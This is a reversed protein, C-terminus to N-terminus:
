GSQIVHQSRESLDPADQWLVVRASQTTEGAPLRHL